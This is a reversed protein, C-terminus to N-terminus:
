RGKSSPTFVEFWEKVRLKRLSIAWRLTHCRMKSSQLSKLLLLTLPHINKSRRLPLLTIASRLKKVRFRRHACRQFSSVNFTWHRIPNTSISRQEITPLIFSSFGFCRSAVRMWFYRKVSNLSNRRIRVDYLRKSCQLIHPVTAAAQDCLQEAISIMVPLSKSSGKRSM